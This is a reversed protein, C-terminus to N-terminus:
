VLRTLLSALLDALVYLRQPIAAVAADSRLVQPARGASSVLARVRLPGGRRRARAFSPMFFAPM